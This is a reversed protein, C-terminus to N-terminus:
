NWKQRSEQFSNPFETLAKKHWVEAIKSVFVNRPLYYLFSPFTQIHDLRGCWFNQSDYWIGLTFFSHLAIITSMCPIWLNGLLFYHVNSSWLSNWWEQRRMRSSTWGNLSGAKARKWVNKNPDFCVLLKTNWRWIWGWKIRMRMMVMTPRRLQWNGANCGLFLSTAWPIITCSSPQAIATVCMSPWTNQPSSNPCPPRPWDCSPPPLALSATRGPWKPSQWFIKHKKFYVRYNPGKSWGLGSIRYLIIPSSLQMIQSVHCYVITLLNTALKTGSGM